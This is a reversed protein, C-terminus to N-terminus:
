EYSAVDLIRNLAVSEDSIYEQSFYYYSNPENDPIVGNVVLGLVTQGSQELLGKAFAASGSDVVGPRSVLLVGDTMKGLIPADAAVNLSPTDIIVFDYRSAVHNILSAMRESDLLVAPNPPVVGSTLVDLTESVPKIADGLQVQNVLMNSLGVENSLDWIRHQVPKHLDADILLVKSGRQAIVAALNASVTSKGEQPLSSTVTVAKLAKDSSLFKLNAQLMRYSESIPSRPTNRVIVQPTFPDLVEQSPNLLQSKSFHPVVGLLTFKFLQKVDKITKLSKDRTELIYIIAATALLGQFCAAIYAIKASSIPIMPVQAGAIIRANGMNQNEAVQIEGLKNLLLSYTSQSVDLQRELERQQQELRPLDNLRKRYATQANVLAKTQNALGLRAAELEVLEKTLDQQLEGLQFLQSHSKPKAKSVQKVRQNLIGKLSAVKNELKAITPHTPQFRNRELALEVEVQRLEQLAEQVEPSQKLATLAIAQKSNMGLRTQLSEYQANVDAMKSQNQAIEKQLDTLVEIASRAEADLSIVQNEQKFQRLAAETKSVTAEAQPLQKEIFKRAAVAEARQFDLHNELYISMLQNVVAAAEKPDQSQYSVELLDTKRINTVSVNHLFDKIALPKGQNDTLNLATITKQALPESMMINAETDLPNSQDVLPQLIGIEKGVETVSSTTNLRKFLLLGQAVYVPKQLSAVLSMIVSVTVFIGSAPLWRRKLIWWYQEFRSSEPSEM